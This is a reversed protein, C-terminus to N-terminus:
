PWDWRGMSPGSPECGRRRVGPPSDGYPEENSVPVGLEGVGKVLHQAALADRRDARGDPSRPRVGAGFSPDLREPGLTEVVQEYDRGALEFLDDRLVHAAAVSRPRAWTESKRNGLGYDRPRGDSDDFTVVDETPEDVLVTSRRSRQWDPGGPPTWSRDTIRRRM